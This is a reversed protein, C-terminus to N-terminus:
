CRCIQVGCGNMYERCRCYFSIAGVVTASYKEVSAEVATFGEVM